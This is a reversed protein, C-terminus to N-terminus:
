TKKKKKGGLRIETITYLSDVAAFSFHIKKIEFQSNHAICNYGSIFLGDQSIENINAKTFSLM